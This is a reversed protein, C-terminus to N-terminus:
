PCMYISVVVQVDTYWFSTSETCMVAIAFVVKVPNMPDTLVNKRASKVRAGLMQKWEMSNLFEYFPSDLNPAADPM